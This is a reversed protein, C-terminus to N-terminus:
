FGFILKGHKEAFRVSGIEAYGTHQIHAKELFEVAHAILRGQIRETKIVVIFRVRVLVVVGVFLNFFLFFAPACGQLRGIIWTGGALMFASTVARMNGRGAVFLIRGVDNGVKFDM